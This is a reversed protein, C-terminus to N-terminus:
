VPPMQRPLSPISDRFYSYIESKLRYEISHLFDNKSEDDLGDLSIESIMEHAINKSGIAAYTEIFHVSSREKLYNILEMIRDEHRRFAEGFWKNYNFELGHVNIYYTEIGRIGNNYGRCREATLITEGDELFGGGYIRNFPVSFVPSCNKNLDFINDFIEGDGEEPTYEAIAFGNPAVGALSFFTNDFIFNGNGDVLMSDDDDNIIVSAVKDCAGFKTMIPKELETFESCERFWKNVVQSEIVHSSRYKVFTSWGLLRTSAIDGPKAPADDVVDSNFRATNIRDRILAQLFMIPSYIIVMADIEGQNYLQEYYKKAGPPMGIADAVSSNPSEIQVNDDEDYLISEDEENMYSSTEFHFQYKRNNVKDINIYLPGKKNYYDFMNESKEAATCWETNKGYLIAAEKTHPIIILWQGDEYVKEAGGKIKRAADSKSTAKDGEMYPEVVRYLEGMSNLTMIDKVQVVNKYKDYVSLLNTAEGFDGEKFTGKRYINLLWKTYKGMRGNRYTPDLQLIQCYTGYPIDTYYKQYIEETTAETLFLRHFINENLHIIM